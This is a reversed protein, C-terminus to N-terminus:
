RSWVYIERSVNGSDDTNDTSIYTKRAKPSDCWKGALVQAQV